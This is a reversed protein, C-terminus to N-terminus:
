PDTQQHVHTAACQPQTFLTRLPNSSLKFPPTLENLVTSGVRPGSDPGLYLSFAFVFFLQTNHCMSTSWLQTLAYHCSERAQGVRPAGLWGGRLHRAGSSHHWMHARGQVHTHAWVLVRLGLETKQPRHELFPIATDDRPEQKSRGARQKTSSTKRQHLREHWNSELDKLTKGKRNIHFSGLATM